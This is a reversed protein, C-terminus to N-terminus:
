AVGDQLYAIDCFLHKPSKDIFDDANRYVTFIAKPRDIDTDKVSGMKARKATLACREL